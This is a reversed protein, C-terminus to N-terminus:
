RARIGRKRSCSRAKKGDRNENLGSYIKELKGLSSFKLKTLKLFILRSSRSIETNKRYFFIKFCHFFKISDIALALCNKIRLNTRINNEILYM